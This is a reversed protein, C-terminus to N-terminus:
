CPAVFLVNNNNNNNNNHLPESFHLLITWTAFSIQSSPLPLNEEGRAGIKGLDVRV